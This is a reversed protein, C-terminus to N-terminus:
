EEGGESLYICLIIKKEQLCVVVCVIPTSNLTLGQTIVEEINYQKNLLLIILKRGKKKLIERTVSRKASCVFVCM